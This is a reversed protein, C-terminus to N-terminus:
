DKKGIVFAKPDDELIKKAIPDMLEKKIPKQDYKEFKEDELNIHKSNSWYNDILNDFGDFENMTGRITIEVAEKLSYEYWNTSGMYIIRNDIFIAKTHLKPLSRAEFDTINDKAYKLAYLTKKDVDMEWLRVIFNLKIDKKVSNIVEKVFFIDIWPGIIVVSEKAQALDGRLYPLIKGQGFIKLKNSLLSSKNSMM